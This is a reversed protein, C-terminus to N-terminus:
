GAGSTTKDKLAAAERKIEAQADREFNERKLREFGEPNMECHYHHHRMRLEKDEKARDADTKPWWGLLQLAQVYAVALAYGLTLRGLWVPGDFELIAFGLPIAVMWTFVLWWGFRAVRSQARAAKRLQASTRFPIDGYIRRLAASELAAQPWEENTVSRWHSRVAGSASERWGSLHSYRRIGDLSILNGTGDFSTIVVPVDYRRLWAALESEMAEAIRPVSAVDPVVLQLTAFPSGSIPPKYEVFYSGRDERLADFYITDGVEM